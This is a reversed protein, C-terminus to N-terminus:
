HKLSKAFAAIRNYLEKKPFDEYEYTVITTPKDIKILRRLDFPTGIAVTDCPTADISAKLDKIQQDYYGMAPLSTELHPFKNFTAKLSGKAYPRPDVPQAGYQKVCVSAAGFPMGGHTLTPGDDVCLVKKGQVLQPKDCALVSKGVIVQAKPNVEHAVQEAAKIGDYPASNAKGVVVVDAAKMNVAGPFFTKGHEPRFPDAVVIWLDPKYFPFDNNGGDWLVVDTEKEVEKLIAEYDVGAYVITGRAVHAEYEEREEITAKHKDMDAYTEFRQVAQRALDGYPMPHRVAITKLGFQKLTDVVYRSIQSKGCGTRTATVAICPKKSKVMTDKPGLLDFHPGAALVRTAITMVTQHPLDSYALTCRDVKERKIIEELDNEDWIPLGKPYLPGSLSAPYQRGAIEPIQTATFGVVEVKDNNRYYTNFNHFDRGAAGLILVREKGKAASLFRRCLTASGASLRALM